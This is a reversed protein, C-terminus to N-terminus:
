RIGRPRGAVEVSEPSVSVSLGMWGDRLEFQTVRSGEPLREALLEASTLPLPKSPSLVKNFIARAPFRERMSMRPGSISLHGERVLAVDLGDIQPRYAGRVIFNTLRSGRDRELRIIRMTIWLKGDEIEVTIPRHKAFQIKVDAPLDEPLKSADAGLLEFCERLVSELPEAQEQPVLQELTNNIASQHMQASFLSDRLARPRPTMAALQWDGAMRYRATLRTDTTTLDIVSPQLKLRTLPGLVAESFRESAAGVQENITRDIEGSLEARMRSKAIRSSLPATKWYESEAISRVLSGILPWSDYKTKVGHLETRGTVDVMSNGLQIDSAKISIPTIADFRNASSTRVAAPGRRGTSRTAVNGRTELLVEWSDSSPVLDLALESTVQSVGTVRSGLLTTRVPVTQPPVEPLLREILESTISFRINANRYHANLNQALEIAQPHNSYRLAKMAQAIEATVLDVGNSEAREIQHLLSAYDIAMTAWPRVAKAVAQPADSALWRRHIPELQPWQLRALFRQAVERRLHDDTRAFASEMEDLLLFAVWGEVDGTRPLEERLEALTDAVNSVADGVYQPAPFDGSNIMYIPMWVALRRELSFAAQLWAVRASRSRVQEAQQIGVQQLRTLQELANAVSSEGLRNAEPLQRLLERVNATWETAASREADDVLILQGRDLDPDNPMWDVISDLVDLQEILRHAVPWTASRAPALSRKKAPTEPVTAEGVHRNTTIVDPEASTERNSVPRPTTQVPAEAPIPEIALDQGRDVAGTRDFSRALDSVSGAPVARVAPFSRDIANGHDLLSADDAFFVDRPDSDDSAAGAFLDLKPAPISEAIMQEGSEVEALSESERRDESVGPFGILESEDAIPVGSVVPLTLDTRTEAWSEIEALEEAAYRPHEPDALVEVPRQAVPASKKSQPDQASKAVFPAFQGIVARLARPTLEPLTALLCILSTLVAAALPWIVLTSKVDKRMFM